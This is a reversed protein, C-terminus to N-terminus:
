WVINLLNRHRRTGPMCNPDPPDLKFLTKVPRREKGALWDLDTQNEEAAWNGDGIGGHVVLVSDEVLAAFPLWDFVDHVCDFVCAGLAALLVHQVCAVNFGVVGMNYNMERFEHNGRLLVVRDPFAVKLSLLLLVVEVQQPGRDVFDGDFIYTCLEVDGGLRNSPFGHERFLALLDALQGHIDGFVKSPGRARVLMPQLQLLRCCEKAVCEVCAVFDNGHAASHKVAYPAVLQQLESDTGVLARCNAALWHTFPESAVPVAPDLCVRQFRSIFHSAIKFACCSKDVHAGRWSALAVKVSGIDVHAERRVVHDTAASTVDDGSRHPRSGEVHPHKAFYVEQAGRCAAQAPVAARSAAALNPSPLLPLLDANLQLLELSAAHRSLEGKEVEVLGREDAQAGEVLQWGGEITGSSRKVRLSKGRLSALEDQAASAGGMTEAAAMDDPESILQELSRICWTANSMVELAKGAQEGM